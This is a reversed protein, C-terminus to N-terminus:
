KAPFLAAFEEVTYKSMELSTFTKDGAHWSRGQWTLKIGKAKLAATKADLVPQPNLSVRKKKDAPKAAPAPVTTPATPEVPAPNEATRINSQFPSIPLGASAATDFQQRLERHSVTDVPLPENAPAKIPAKIPNTKTAM